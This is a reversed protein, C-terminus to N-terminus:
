SAIRMNDWVFPYGAKGQVNGTIPIGFLSLVFKLHNRDKIYYTLVAVNTISWRIFKSNCKNSSWNFQLYALAHFSWNEITKAVIIIQSALLQKM